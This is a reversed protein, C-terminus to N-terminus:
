PRTEAELRAARCQARAEALRERADDLTRRADLLDLLGTAGAAYLSKGRLLNTEAREAMSEAEQRRREASRWRDLLDLVGRMQADTQFSMQQAAAQVDARRAEVAPAVTADLLPRVFDVGASAGLDRQLRDGFGARSDEMRMEPPVAHVLDTGGLGADSTLNVVLDKRHEADAQDLLTRGHAIAAARVEPLRPVGLVLHISDAPTPVREEGPEPARVLAAVGPPRGLLQGLERAVLRLDFRTSELSARVADRELDVRMRDSPGSTGGHVRADLIGGLDELWALSASQSREQERLLLAEIALSAARQAASLCAADFNRYADEAQNAAHARERAAIGGDHLPVTLGIKLQYEGLNTMAPDYFGSPALLVSGVLGVKARRNRSASLSDFRSGQRTLAAIRVEPSTERALRICDAISLSDRGADEAVLSSDAATAPAYATELPSGALLPSPGPLLGGAAFLLM